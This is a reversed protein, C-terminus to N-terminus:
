HHHLVCHSLSKCDRLGVGAYLQRWLLLKITNLENKATASMEAISYCLRGPLWDPETYLICATM